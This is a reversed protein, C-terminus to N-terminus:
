PIWIGEEPKGDRGRYFKSDGIHGQVKPESNLLKISSSVTLNKIKGHFLIATILKHAIIKQDKELTRIQMIYSKGAIDWEDQNKKITEDLMGYCLQPNLIPSAIESSNPRITTIEEIESKRKTQDRNRPTLIIKMIQVYIYLLNILVIVTWSLLKGCIYLMWQPLSKQSRLKNFKKKMSSILEPIAYLLPLGFLALVIKFILDLFVKTLTDM